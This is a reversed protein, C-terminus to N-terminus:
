RKPRPQNVSRRVEKASKQKSHTTQNTSSRKRGKPIRRSDYRSTGSYVSYASYASYASYRSYVRESRKSGPRDGPFILGTLPPTQAFDIRQAGVAKTSVKGRLEFETIGVRLPAFPLTVELPRDSPRKRLTSTLQYGGSGTAFFSASYSFKKKSDVTLIFGKKLITVRVRLVPIASM